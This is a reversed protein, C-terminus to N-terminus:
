AQQKMAQHLRVCASIYEQEANKLTKMTRKNSRHNLVDDTVAIFTQRYALEKQNAEQLAQELDASMIRKVFLLSM